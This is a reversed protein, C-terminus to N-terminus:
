RSSGSRHGLGRNGGGGTGVRSRGPRGALPSLDHDSDRIENPMIDVQPEPKSQPIVSPGIEHLHPVTMRV